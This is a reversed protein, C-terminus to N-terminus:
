KIVRSSSNNTFFVVFFVLLLRILLLCVKQELVDIVERLHDALLNRKIKESAADMEKYQDALEIYIRYFSSDAFIFSPHMSVLPCLSLFERNIIHFTM